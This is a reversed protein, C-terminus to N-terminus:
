RILGSLVDGPKTAPTIADGHTDPANARGNAAGAM